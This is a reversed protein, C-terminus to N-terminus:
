SEHSFHEHHSQGDSRFEWDRLDSEFSSSTAATSLVHGCVALRDFFLLKM